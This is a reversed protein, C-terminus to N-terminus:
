RRSRQALGITGTALRDLQVGIQRLGVDRASDGNRQSTAVILGFSCNAAAM